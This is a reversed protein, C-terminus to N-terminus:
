ASEVSISGSEGIKEREEEGPLCLVFSYFFFLFVFFSIWEYMTFSFIGPGPYPYGISRSIIQTIVITALIAYYLTGLRYVIHRPYVNRGRWWYFGASVAYCVLSLTAVWIHLRMVLSGDETDPLLGVFITLIAAFRFTLTSFRDAWPNIERLSVAIYSILPQATIGMFVMALTFFIWGPSDHYNGLYSMTHTM